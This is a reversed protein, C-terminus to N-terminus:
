LQAFQLKDGNKFTNVYV